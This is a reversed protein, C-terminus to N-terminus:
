FWKLGSHWSCTLPNLPPKCHNNRLFFICHRLFIMKAFYLFNSVYPSAWSKTLSFLPTCLVVSIFLRVFFDFIAFLTGAAKIFSEILFNEVSFATEDKSFSVTISVFKLSLLFLLRVESLKVNVQALLIDLPRNRHINNRYRVFWTELQIHFKNPHRGDM